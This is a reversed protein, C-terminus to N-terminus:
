RECCIIPLIGEGDKAPKELALLRCGAYEQIHSPHFDGFLYPLIMHDKILGQIM